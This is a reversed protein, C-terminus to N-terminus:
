INVSFVCNKKVIKRGPSSRHGDERTIVSWNYAWTFDQWRIFLQQGRLSGGHGRGAAGSATNEGSIVDLLVSCSCLSPGLGM